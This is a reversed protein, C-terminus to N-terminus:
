GDVYRLVILFFFPPQGEANVVIDKPGIEVTDPLGDKIQVSIYDVRYTSV